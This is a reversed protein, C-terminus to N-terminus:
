DKELKLLNKVTKKSFNRWTKNEKLFTEFKSNIENGVYYKVFEERSIKNDTALRLIVGELSLIKKNEKYHSQVLEEVVSPSLQLNKFDEVLISQSKKLNKNKSVSLERSNLICELKEIQYKKLKSYNKALNDILLIIKPKIEEEMVALSVNFEDNQDFINKVKKEM